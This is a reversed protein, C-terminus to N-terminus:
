IYEADILTDSTGALTITSAAFTTVQAWAIGTTFRKGYRFEILQTTKTPVFFYMLPVDNTAPNSAKNVLAYVQTAANNNHVYLRYLNGASAKITGTNSAAIIDAATAVYTAANLPKDHCAFVGNANDEAVAAKQEEQRLNGASTTELPGGQGDTRTVPSSHYLAWPLGNLFGTFTSGITTQGSRLRDWTTGNFGELFAIAGAVTPNATADGAASASASGPAATLLEGSSNVRLKNLMGETLTLTNATYYAEAM